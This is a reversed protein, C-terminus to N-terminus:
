NDNMEGEPNLNSEPTPDLVPDVIPEPKPERELEVLLDISDQTIASYTGDRKLEIAVESPMVIGANLYIQDREAKTKQITVIDSEGMQWLPVFEIEFENTIGSNKLILDVLRELQPKLDTEQKNSVMDYYNSLEGKGTAAIGGPTEGFLRAVPIEAAGSVDSIFQRWIDALNTFNNSKKEYEEDQDILFVRNFSKMLSATQFRKIVKEEGGKTSLLESLNGVKLVDVNAEYFMSVISGKISDYAKVSDFVHQLESDGWRQNTIWSQYPLSQGEFRIVRTWHIQKSSPMLTYTQPLDFNPSEIDTDVDSGPILRFKDVVRFYKLSGVTIEGLPTSLDDGTGIIIASGGFLRSWRISEEVLSKLKWPKEYQCWDFDELEEIEVKIWERVMDETVSNIIRKALWSDRFISELLLQDQSLPITVSYSSHFHKDRWTMLGSVVNQLGDLINM